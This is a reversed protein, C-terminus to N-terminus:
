VQFDASSIPTPAPPTTHIAWAGTGVVGERRPVQTATRLGSPLGKGGVGAGWSDGTITLVCFQWKSEMLFTELPLCQQMISIKTNM